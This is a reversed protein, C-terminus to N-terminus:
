SQRRPWPLAVPRLRELDVKAYVKTAQLNRHRLVDAIEKLSAGSRQLRIALSHRLVHSRYLHEDMGCRRFARFLISRIASVSLPADFPARHRVFLRRNSTSPRGHRLYEAIAQGTQVPLPLQQVRQTKGHTITLVGTPWDVSELSLHAVEHGRLGLDVLCRAIGYDRQGVPNDLDFARLLRDLQAETLAAPLNVQSYDAILPLAAVLTQNQDGRLARFRLYSKLSTRIIALSVPKWRTAYDVFCDEIDQATMQSSDVTGSGFCQTLFNSVHKVRSNCTSEALGSTDRLYHRFKELECTVPTPAFQPACAFGQQQLVALLHNLAARLVLVYCNRPAPCKCSPLHSNLFLEVTPKDVEIAEAGKKKLWYAFHALAKLYAHITSDAYRQVHLYDLYASVIFSLPGDVLWSRRALSTVLPDDSM